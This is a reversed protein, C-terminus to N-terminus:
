WRAILLDDSEPDQPTGRTQANMSRTEGLYYELEQRLEQRLNQSQTMAICLEDALSTAMLDEFLSDFLYEDADFIYVMLVVDSGQFLLKSGEIAHEYGPKDIEVMRIFDSPLTFQHAYGYLPTTSDAHLKVRKKAFNWNHRRLLKRKIRDYNDNVLKARKNNDALDTIPEQGLKILASNCIGLKTAM